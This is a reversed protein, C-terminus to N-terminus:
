AAEKWEDPCWRSALWWRRTMAYIAGAGDGFLEPMVGIPKFGVGELLKRSRANRVHTLAIFLRVGLHGFPLALVAGINGRTAWRASDAAITGEVSVGERYNNYAVAAVLRRDPAIFGITRCDGLPACSPVRAEIWRALFATEAPTRPVYIM